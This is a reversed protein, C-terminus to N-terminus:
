VPEILVYQNNQPKKEKLYLVHIIILWSVLHLSM